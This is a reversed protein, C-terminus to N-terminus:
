GHSRKVPPPSPSSKEVFPPLGKTASIKAAVPLRFFATARTHSFGPDPFIVTLPRSSPAYKIRGVETMSMSCGNSTAPTEPFYSTITRTFPPPKDPCAPATRWPFTLEECTSVVNLGARAAELGSALWTLGQPFTGM